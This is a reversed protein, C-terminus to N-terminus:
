KFDTYELNVSHVKFFIIGRILFFNKGEASTIIVSQFKLFQELVLIKQHFSRTLLLKVLTLKVM